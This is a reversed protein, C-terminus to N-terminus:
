GAEIKEVVRGVVADIDKTVAAQAGRAPETAFHARVRQEHWKNRIKHKGRNVGRRERWRGWNPVRYLGAELESVQRDHGQRGRAKVILSVRTEFATKVEATFHLAAKFVQEYGAPMYDDSKDRIADAATGTAARRLGRDLEKKLHPGAKRLRRAVDHLADAGTVTVEM